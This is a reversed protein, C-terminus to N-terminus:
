TQFQWVSENQNDCCCNRNHDRDICQTFLTLFVMKAFPFVIYINTLYNYTLSFSCFDCGLIAEYVSNACASNGFFGPFIRARKCM